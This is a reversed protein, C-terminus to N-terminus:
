GGGVFSVLEIKDSDNVAVDQWNLSKVIKGNVEAIVYKPTKCTQKILDSLLLRQNFSREKGNIIINM